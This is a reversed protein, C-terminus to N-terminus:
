SDLLKITDTNFAAVINNVNTKELDLENIRPKVSNNFANQFKPIDCNKFSRYTITIPEIESAVLNYDVMVSDHYAIFRVDSKKYSLIKSESDVIVVDM